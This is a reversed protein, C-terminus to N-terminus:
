VTLGNKWELFHVLHQIKRGKLKKKKRTPHLLTVTHSPPEAHTHPKASSPKLHPFISLKSSDPPAVTTGQPGQQDSSRCHAPAQRMGMTNGPHQLFGALGMPKKGHNINWCKSHPIKMIWRCRTQCEAIQRCSWSAPQRRRTAADHKRGQEQKAGLSCSFNTGM